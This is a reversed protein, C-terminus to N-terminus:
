SEFFRRLKQSIVDLEAREPKREYNPPMKLGFGDRDYRPFVHLHVHLVEQGAAAGDALFINVGRSRLNSKYLAAAAKQAVQFLHAGEELTLDALRTSHRLPIVLMHGATVPQVDMIVLCTDDRYVISAPELGAAIECFICKSM